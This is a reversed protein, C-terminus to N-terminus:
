TVKPELLNVHFSHMNVSAHQLIKTNYSFIVSAPVKSIEYCFAKRNIEHKSNFHEYIIIITVIIVYFLNELRVEDESTLNKQKMPEVGRGSRKGM